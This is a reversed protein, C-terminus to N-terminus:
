NLFESMVELAEVSNEGLTIVEHVVDEFSSNISLAGFVVYRGQVRSFSSLPMPINMDLMVELLESKSDRKIEDESWLYSICLIQADTSSIYIPLEEFGELVVQLVEVEGPIVQCEFSYGELNLNSFNLALDQINM